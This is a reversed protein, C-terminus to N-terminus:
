RNGGIVALFLLVGITVAAVLVTTIMVDLLLGGFLGAAKEGADVIAPLADFGTPVPEDAPQTPAYPYASSDRM